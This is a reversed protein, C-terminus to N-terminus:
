TSAFIHVHHVRRVLTYTRRCALVRESVYLSLRRYWWPLDHSQTYLDTASLSAQGGGMWRRRIGNRPDYGGLRRIRVRRSCFRLPRSVKAIDLLNGHGQPRSSSTRITPMACCGRRASSRDRAPTPSISIGRLLATREIGERQFTERDSSPRAVFGRGGESRHGTKVNPAKMLGLDRDSIRRRDSWRIGGRASEGARLHIGEHFARVRSGFM